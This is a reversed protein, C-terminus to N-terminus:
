GPPLAWVSHALRTGARGLVNGSLDRLRYGHAVMGDYVADAAAQGHLAIMWRSNKLTLLNAAGTIVDGEAGEVDVKLLAPPPFGAAIQGDISVTAVRTSGTDALRGSYTSHAHDFSATGGHRDCVAANVVTVNSLANAGVNRTLWSFNRPLPEFAVVQGNPGVARSSALTFYGAHAGIDWVTTGPAAQGLFLSVERREYWGIWCGHNASGVTWRLGKNPGSLIRVVTSGPIIRLPLRIARGLPTTSSFMESIM